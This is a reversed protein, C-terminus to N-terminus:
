FFLKCVRIRNGNVTFYFANNPLRPKQANTYKYRAQVEMMCSRIYSRKLELNSLGWYNKFLDCRENESVNNFCQLRCKSTCTEKM